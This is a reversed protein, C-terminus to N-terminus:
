KRRLVISKIDIIKDLNYISYAAAILVLISGFLYYYFSTFIYTFSFGLLGLLFTIAALKILGASIIFNYRHKVFFYVQIFYIVYGILFSIGLGELGSFYYGAVNFLLLYINFTLENWFFAKSDGKALFLFAM